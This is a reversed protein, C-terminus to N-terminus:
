RVPLLNNAYGFPRNPDGLPQGLQCRVSVPWDGQVVDPSVTWTWSVHGNADATQVPFQPADSGGTRYHVSLTCLAGPVTTTAQITATAGRQVTTPTQMTVYVAYGGGSNSVPVPTDTPEPTATEFGAPTPSSTASTTADPTGGKATPRATPTSTATPLATATPTMSAGIGGPPPTVPGGGGGAPPTPTLFGPGTGSATDVASTSTSGAMGGPPGGNQDSCAALFLALLATVLVRALLM